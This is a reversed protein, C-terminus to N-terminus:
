GRQLVVSCTMRMINNETKFPIDIKYSAEVTEGLAPPVNLRLGPVTKGIFFTSKIHSVNERTGPGNNSYYIYYYWSYNPIYVRWYRAATKEFNFTYYYLNSTHAYDTRTYSVNTWTENDDSCEIVLRNMYSDSIKYNDIKLINCDKASGLDIWIPNADTVYCYSPYLYGSIPHVGWYLPDRYQYSTSPTLSAMNGFKANVGDVKMGATYYNERANVCNSEYDIEYESPSLERDAVYIKVTGSKILPCKINYETTQGDGEGLVLHDISYDPFVSPDPFQFGGIGTMAINKIIRNNFESDLITMVPMELTFNEYDGTSNSFSFTKTSIYDNALETTNEVLFRGSRVILETNGLLLYRTIINNEALPFIGNDGFGTKSFTCYFTANIYVVDVDTKQIAIQNGEADQIMAHTCLMYVQTSWMGVYYTCEMGVETFTSGNYEDANIKIQRTIYSTPYEYNTEVLSASRHILPTFLATDTIAPTGTGTGVAIYSMSNSYGPQNSGDLQRLRIKFFNDLIVNYAYAKQKEKGTKADCVTIEFKNYLKVNQRLDM